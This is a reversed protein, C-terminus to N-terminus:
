LGLKRIKDEIRNIAATYGEEYEISEIEEGNEHMAIFEASQERMEVLEAKLEGLLKELTRQVENIVDNLM